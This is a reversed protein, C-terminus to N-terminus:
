WDREKERQKKRLSRLVIAWAALDGVDRRPVRLKTPVLMWLGRPPHLRWYLSRAELTTGGEPVLKVRFTASQALALLPEKGTGDGLLVQPEPWSEPWQATKEIIFRELSQFTGCAAARFFEPADVTRFIGSACLEGDANVLAWGSKNRGPDIGLYVTLGSGRLGV